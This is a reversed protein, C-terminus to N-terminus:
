IHIVKSSHRYIPELIRQVSKAAGFRDSANLSASTRRRRVSWNLDCSSSVSSSSVRHKRWFSILKRSSSSRQFRCEKPNIEPSGILNTREIRQATRDSSRSRGPRDAHWSSKSWRGSRLRRYVFLLPRPARCAFQGSKFWFHVFTHMRVPWHMESRRHGGPRVEIECPFFREDHICSCVCRANLKGAALRVTPRINLSASLVAAM